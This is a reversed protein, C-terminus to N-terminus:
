HAKYFDVAPNSNGSCAGRSSGDRGVPRPQQQSFPSTGNRQFLALAASDLVPDHAPRVHRELPGNSRLADVADHRRRRRRKFAFCLAIFSWRYAVFCVPLFPSTQPLLAAASIRFVIIPHLLQFNTPLLLITLPDSFLFLSRVCLLFCCFICSCTIIVFLLERRFDKSPWFPLMLCHKGTNIKATCCFLGCRSLLRALSRLPFLNHLWDRLVKLYPPTRM